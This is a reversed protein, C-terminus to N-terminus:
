RMREINMISMVWIQFAEERQMSSHGYAKPELRFHGMDEIKIQNGM